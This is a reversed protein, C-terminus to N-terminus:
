VKEKGFAVRRQYKKLNHVLTPGLIKEDKSYIFHILRNLDEGSLEVYILDHEDKCQLAPEKSEFPKGCYSCQYIKKKNAMFM